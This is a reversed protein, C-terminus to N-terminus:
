LSEVPATLRRLDCLMVVALQELGDLKVAARWNQELVVVGTRGAHEGSQIRVRDGDPTM